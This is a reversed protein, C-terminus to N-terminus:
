RESAQCELFENVSKSFLLVAPIPIVVLLVVTSIWTPKEFLSLTSYLLSLVSTVILLWKAWNQGWYTGAMFASHLLIRVLEKGPSEVQQTLVFAVVLLDSLFLPCYAALLILRGCKLRPGFGINAPLPQMGAQFAPATVMPEPSNSPAPEARAEVCLKPRGAYAGSQALVLNSADTGDAGCVPCAVASPMRGSLPEVDLSYRQGCGCDIKVSVM